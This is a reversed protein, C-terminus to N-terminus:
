QETCVCVCVGGDGYLSKSNGGGMDMYDISSLLETLSKPLADVKMRLECSSHISEVAWLKGLKTQKPLLIQRFARFYIKAAPYSM